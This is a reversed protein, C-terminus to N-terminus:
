IVPDVGNSWGSEGGTQGLLHMTTVEASPNPPPPVGPAEVEVNM